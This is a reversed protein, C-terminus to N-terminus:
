LILSFRWIGEARGEELTRFTNTGCIVGPSPPSSSASNHNPATESNAGLFILQAAPAVGQRQINQQLPAPSPEDKRSRASSRLNRRADDSSIFRITFRTTQM